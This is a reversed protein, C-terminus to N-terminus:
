RSSPVSGVRTPARLFDFDVGRDAQLVTQLYLKRYGREAQPEVVPNDRARRALEEDAVLLAIERRAVSLRIRDGDRV